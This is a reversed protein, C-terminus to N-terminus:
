KNIEFYLEVVESVRSRLNNARTVFQLDSSGSNFIEGRVKDITKAVDEPKYINGSESKIETEQMVGAKLIDFRLNIEELASKKEEEIMQVLKNIDTHDQPSSDGWAEVQKQLEELRTKTDNIKQIREKIIDKWGNEFDFGQRPTEEENHDRPPNEITM